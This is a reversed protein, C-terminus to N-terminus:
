GLVGRSLGDEDSGRELAAYADAVQDRVQRAATVLMLLASRRERDDPAGEVRDALAKVTALGGRLRAVAAERGL